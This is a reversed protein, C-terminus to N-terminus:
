TKKDVDLNNESPIVEMLVQIFYTFNDMWKLRFKYYVLPIYLIFGLGILFLAFFYSLSPDLIIPVLCLFLAAIIVLVPAFLPVKYTRKVDKKTKRMIMLAVMALAYFIWILFSCFDILTTIDGAIIFLFSLFGQLIVAPAPTLRRLHIYSFAEIMHGETGAVYCQRATAFQSTLASGFTSMAVGVPIIFSMVGLLRDGFVVAVAPAATMEPVTLVTMYAINMLLYVAAVLPVAIIISRLVNVEPNRVEETIVTVTAWGGYAWLCGYFALALKDPSTSSGDFGKSLNETKGTCLMVVGAVIVVGCVVLKGISFVNQIRVYLKVSMFNIFTLLCLGLIAIIKKVIDQSELTLGNMYGVFPQCIYESFTLVMIAGATPNIICVQIFACIFCPLPGWFKHLGRYAELFYAYEAGSRPVVSSLEAYSLAGMLTIVGCVAWIILCLGVSGSRELTISPSVFIGSGIMCSITLNVASFLGLERKLEVKNLVETSGAPFSETSRGPLVEASNGEM